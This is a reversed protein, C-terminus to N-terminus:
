DNKALNLLRKNYEEKSIAGNEFLSDLGAIYNQKIESISLATKYIRVDDISGILGSCGAKKGIYVNVMNSISLECTGNSQRDVYKGDMYFEAYSACNGGSVIERRTGTIYKWGFGSGDPNELNTPIGCCTGAWMFYVDDPSSITTFAYGPSGWANCSGSKTILATSDLHTDMKAWMSITFEDHGFNLSPSDKIEVYTSGDFYLCKESVCDEGERVTPAHGTIDGHNYGWSDRVDSNTAASGAPTPGDFTWESVLSDLNKNKLGISLNLVEMKKQQEFADNTSFFIISALIGIITIVALMEILTFSKTKRYKM